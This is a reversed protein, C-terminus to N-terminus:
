NSIVNIQNEFSLFHAWYDKILGELQSSDECFQIKYLTDSLANIRLNSSAGKLLHGIKQITDLDGNEYAELMKKTEIHAQDIFDRVFEEILEVPLSLDNAAEELQFDFHMPNIGELSITGFSKDSTSKSPTVEKQAIPEEAIIPEDFLEIKEEENTALIEDEITDKGLDTPENDIETSIEEEINLSLVDNLDEEVSEADETTINSLTTYFSEISKREKEDAINSIIDTIQPLHLVESLHSLTDIASSRIKDDNSQLDKELGLATDIFEDLFSKYDDTSIGIKQSIEEVNVHIVEATEESKETDFFLDNDLGLALAIEETEVPNEAEEEKAEDAVLDFLASEDLLNDEILPENETIEESLNDKSSITLDDDLTLHDGFTIEDETKEEVTEDLALGKDDGEQIITDILDSGEEAIDTKVDLAPLIKDESEEVSLNVLTLTGLLSSLPTKFITYSEIEEASSINLNVDSVFDFITDGKAIKASLENIHAVGCLTLADDDAAIIQNTENVIYYM